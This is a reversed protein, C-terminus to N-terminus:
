CPDLGRGEGPAVLTCRSKATAMPGSLSWRSLRRSQHMQSMALRTVSSTFPQVTDCVALASALASLLTRSQYRPWVGRSQLRRVERRRVRLGCLILLTSTMASAEMEHCGPSGWM